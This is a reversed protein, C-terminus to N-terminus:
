NVSSSGESGNRNRQEEREKERSREQEREEGEKEKAEVKTDSKQCRKPELIKAGEQCENNQKLKWQKFLSFLPFSPFSFSSYLSFFPFYGLFFWGDFSSPSLIHSSSKCLNFNRGSTSQSSPSLSYLSSLCLSLSPSSFFTINHILSNELIIRPPFPIFFIANRFHTIPQDFSCFELFSLLFSDLSLSLSLPIKEEFSSALTISM